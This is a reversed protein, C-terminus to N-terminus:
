QTYVCVVSTSFSHSPMTPMSREGLNVASWIAAMLAALRLRVAVCGRPAYVALLASNCRLSRAKTRASSSAGLAAPAREPPPSSRLFEAHVRRRLGTRARAASDGEGAFSM